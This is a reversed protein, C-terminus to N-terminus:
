TLKANYLPHALQGVIATQLLSAWFFSVANKFSISFLARM